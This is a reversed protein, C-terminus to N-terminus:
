RVRGDGRSGLVRAGAIGITLHKAGGGARYQKIGGLLDEQRAEDCSFGRLPM